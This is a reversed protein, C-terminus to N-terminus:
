LGVWLPSGIHGNSQGKIGAVRGGRDALAESLRSAQAGESRPLLRENLGCM